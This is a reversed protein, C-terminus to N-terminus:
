KVIGAPGNNLMDPWGSVVTERRKGLADLLRDLFVFAAENMRAHHLMICCQGGSLATELEAGLAAWSSKEDSEKRTHLDVNIRIDPLDPPAPPAAGISRSVAKFGLQRLMDLTTQGCRNWPPTFVPTFDEGMIEELRQRGRAIDSRIQGAQRGSGFESKKGKAEHNLHRWGHQHWCFSGAAPAAISKLISWRTVTLWTPVVALALPQGHRIFLEMLRILNGSIPGVDDDRFFIRCYSGAPAADLRSELWADFDIGPNRWLICCPDKM